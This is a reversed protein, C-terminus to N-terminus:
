CWGRPRLSVEGITVVNCVEELEELMFQRVEAVLYSADQGNFRYIGENADCFEMARKDYGIAHGEGRDMQFSLYYLGAALTLDYAAFAEALDGGFSGGFNKLHTYLLGYSKAEVALDGSKEYNKQRAVIKNLRSTHNWSGNNVTYTAGNVMKGAAKKKLWDMTFSSCVGAAHKARVDAATLGPFLRQANVYM